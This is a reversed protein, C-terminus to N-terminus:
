CNVIRIIEVRSIKVFHRAYMKIVKDIIKVYFFINVVGNGLLDNRLNVWKVM